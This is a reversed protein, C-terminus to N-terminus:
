RGYVSRAAAELTEIMQRYPGPGYSVRAVGAAALDGLSPSKPTMMVNVPLPTAGCLRAILTPNSLGPAFFSSAGANAYAAARDIAQDVLEGHNQDAAALLFIDTRANIHLPMAGAVERLASIRQAQVATDLLGGNAINQDEFNIGVAGAHILREGFEAVTEPTIGFGAEFDISVPVETSACLRQAVTELLAFPIAEGDEYGHAAAVSWSGTALAAAGARVVAQGSGADWVNYLVLPEGKIHLQTFHKAKQTQNM